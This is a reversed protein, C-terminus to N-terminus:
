DANIVRRMLDVNERHLAAIERYADAKEKQCQAEAAIVRQLEVGQREVRRDIGNTHDLNAKGRLSIAAFILTALSVILAGLPVAWTEM